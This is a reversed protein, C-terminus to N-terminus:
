SQGATQRRNAPVSEGAANAVIASAQKSAKMIVEMANDPSLRHVAIEIAQLDKWRQLFWKQADDWMGQMVVPDYVEAHTQASWKKASFYGGAAVVVLAVWHHVLLFYGACGVVPSAVLKVTAGEVEQENVITRAAVAENVTLMFDNVAALEDAPKMRWPRLKAVFEEKFSVKMKDSEKLLIAPDVVSTMPALKALQDRFRKTLSDRCTVLEVKVFAERLGIAMDGASERFAEAFNM